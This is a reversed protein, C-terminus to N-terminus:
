MYYMTCPIYYARVEVEDDPHIDADLFLADDAGDRAAMALKARERYEELAKM